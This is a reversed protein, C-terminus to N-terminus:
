GTSYQVTSYQVTSYQETCPRFGHQVGVQQHAAGETQVSKEHKDQALCFPFFNAVHKRRFLFDKFSTKENKPEFIFFLM